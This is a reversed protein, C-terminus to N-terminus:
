KTAELFEEVSIIRTGFKAAKQLKSSGSNPDACVLIALNKDVKDVPVYGKEIAIKEM